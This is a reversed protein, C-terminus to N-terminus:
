CPPELSRQRRDPLKFAWLVTTSVAFFLATTVFPLGIWAGGLNLGVSLSKALLPGAVMVGVTETVGLLSNLTGVHHEEVLANLLSRILSAMGSGLAFWALGFSFFLGNVAAAILLSGAVQVIGSWRALWLDKAVAAMGLRQLCLWSANPLLVLLTVLSGANRITVVM